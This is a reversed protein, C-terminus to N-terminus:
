EFFLIHEKEEEESKYFFNSFKFIIFLTPPTELIIKMYKNYLKLHILNSAFILLVIFGSYINFVSKKKKKKKKKKKYRTSIKDIKFSFVFSKVIYLSVPTM